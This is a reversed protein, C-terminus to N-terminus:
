QSRGVGSVVLSERRQRASMEADAEAQSDYRPWLRVRLNDSDTVCLQFRGASPIVEYTRM